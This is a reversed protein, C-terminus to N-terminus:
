GGRKRNKDLRRGAWSLLAAFEPDASSQLALAASFQHQDGPRRLYVVLTKAVDMALKRGADEEVLHLALDIGASVGASSWLPGDRVFIPGMQVEARPFDEQLADAFRWPSTVKRCDLLGSRVLPFADVCVSCPRCVRGVM